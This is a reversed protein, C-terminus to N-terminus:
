PVAEVAVDDPAAGPELLSRHVIAHGVFGDTSTFSTTVGQGREPGAARVVADVREKSPGRVVAFRFPMTAGRADMRGVLEQGTFCGKTFSITEDVFNRGFAHPALECSYEGTWPWGRELLEEHDVLPPAEAGDLVEIYVDVRLRFRALRERCRDAVESPVLLDVHGPKARLWGACIVTGDPELLATWAGADLHAVDQTLQGDLFSSADMGSVRLTSWSLEVM